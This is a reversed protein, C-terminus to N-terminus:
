IAGSHMSFVPTLCRQCAPAIVIHQDILKDHLIDSVVEGRSESLSVLIVRFNTGGIDM